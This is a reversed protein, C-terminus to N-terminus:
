KTTNYGSRPDKLYDDYAEEIEKQTITSESVQVWHKLLITLTHRTQKDLEDLDGRTLTQLDDILKLAKM